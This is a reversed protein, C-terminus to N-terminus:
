QILLSIGTKVSVCATIGSEIRNPIKKESIFDHGKEQLNEFVQRRGPKLM